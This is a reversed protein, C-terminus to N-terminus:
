FIISLFKIAPVNSRNTIKVPLNFQVITVAPFHINRGGSVVTVGIQGYNRGGNRSYLVSNFRDFSWRLGYSFNAGARLPTDFHELFVPFNFLLHARVSGVAVLVTAM